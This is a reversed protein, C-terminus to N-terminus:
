SSAALFCAMFAALFSYFYNFSVKWGCFCPPIGMSVLPSPILCVSWFLVPVDAGM